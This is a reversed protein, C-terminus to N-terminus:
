IDEVSRVTESMISTKAPKISEPESRDLRNGRNAWEQLGGKLVTVNKFGLSSLKMAADGALRDEMRPSPTTQGPGYVIINANKDLNKAIANMEGDFLSCAGPIHGKYYETLERADVIVYGRERRRMQNQLDDVSIEKIQQAYLNIM